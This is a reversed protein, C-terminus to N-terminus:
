YKRINEYYVEHKECSEICEDAAQIAENCAEEAEKCGVSCGRDLSCKNASDNLIRSTEGLQKVCANLIEIHEKHGENKFEAIMADCAKVCTECSAICDKARKIFDICSGDGADAKACLDADHICAECSIITANCKEILDTFVKPTM